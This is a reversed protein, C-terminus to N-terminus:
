SFRREEEIQQKHRCRCGVKCSHMTMKPTSAPAAPLPAICDQCRGYFITRQPNIQFQHDTEVHSYLGQLHSCDLHIIKGCCECKLYFQSSSDEKPCYQFCVSSTGDVAIRHIDGNRELKDLQRYITALGISMGKGTVYEAIMGATVYSDQNERMCDLIAQQQKTRYQRTM